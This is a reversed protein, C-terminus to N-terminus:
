LGLPQASCRISSVQVPFSLWQSRSLSFHPNIGPIRLNLIRELKFRSLHM